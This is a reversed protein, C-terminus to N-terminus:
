AGCYKLWCLYYSHHASSVSVGELHVSTTSVSSYLSVDMTTPWMLPPPPKIDCFFFFLFPPMSKGLFRAVCSGGGVRRKKWCGRRGRNEIERKKRPEEKEVRDKKCWLSVFAHVCGLRQAELPRIHTYDTHQIFLSCLTSIWM